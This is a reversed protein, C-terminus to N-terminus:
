VLVWSISKFRCKERSIMSNLSPMEIQPKYIDIQFSHLLCCQLTVSAAEEEDVLMRGSIYTKTKAGHVHM